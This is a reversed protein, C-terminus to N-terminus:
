QTGQCNERSTLSFWKLLLETFESLGTKNKPNYYFFDIIQGGLNAAMDIVLFYPELSPQLTHAHSQVDEIKFIRIKCSLICSNLKYTYIVSGSYLQILQYFFSFIHSKIKWKLKQAVSQWYHWYFLDPFHWSFSAHYDMFWSFNDFAM